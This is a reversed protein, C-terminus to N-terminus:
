DTAGHYRELQQFQTSSLREMLRTRYTLYLAKDDLFAQAVIDAVILQELEGKLGRLVKGAENAATALPEPATDLLVPTAAKQICEKIKELSVNVSAIIELADEVEIASRNLRLTLSHLNTEIAFVANGIVHQIDNELPKSM